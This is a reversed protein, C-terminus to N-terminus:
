VLGEVGRADPEEAALKAWEDAKANGEAGEHAPCWTVEIAIDPAVRRLAAIHERAELAYKQGPGPEDSARRKIAAQADTIITVQEPAPSRRRALALARALAACEADFAEQNYGMHTKVGKWTQGEKWAVVYGAAEEEM